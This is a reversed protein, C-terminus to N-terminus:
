IKKVVVKGIAKPFVFNLKGGSAKKDNQVAKDLEEVSCPLIVPLGCKAFDSALKDPLFSDCLGEEVSKRAAQVIGISVAEGHTYPNEVGKTRQWWEVAHAYTHGLNLVMRAGKDLPDKRVIKMKIRAAAKIVPELAQADFSSKVVELSKDYWNNRNDIIFTKLLEAIGSNFERDPLTELVSPCIYTFEPKRFSGLMNKYSDLNVGTKGGISADVMALLTTPVNAYRVGRKYISAVFGVIDSTFGGGVALLLADRDANNAMLWRCISVVANMDKGSEDAVIGFSPKSDSVILGSQAGESAVKGGIIRAAFPAVNRDYIVYVKRYKMLTMKLSTLSGSVKLRSSFCM